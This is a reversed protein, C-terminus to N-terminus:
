DALDIAHIREIFSPSRSTAKHRKFGVNVTGYSACIVQGDADIITVRVEEDQDLQLKAALKGGVKFSALDPHFNAGVEATLTPEPMGPLRQDSM